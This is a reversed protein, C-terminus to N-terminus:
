QNEWPAKSGEFDELLLIEVEDGKQYGRTGSPLIILVGAGALSMVVSSKDLGSPEARLRGEEFSLSGRILRTFPNAKPFDVKLWAKEKRLHPKESFLKTRIVPRVFLEFGVYCASPNGSLGYLIKHNLRAVTTVSGPRMAVKNFLVDAELRKYIDPMIDYDGVSVGGTTILIDVETLAQKIAAYCIEIDDPLQGYYKAEAGARAAQAEIMPANSNRIKGPALEESVELLETGTAFLGIMPKKAVKVEHYGFTALVAIVGPNIITGKKVLLDGKKADEGQFSINDGSNQKRKISLYDKNNKEYTKVLELMIVTDAGEPLLAGTMIRAAQFPGVEKEAVMGAALSEIVEFEVSNGSEALRTDEARLAFGDYPSRNFHPVDHNAKIDEALFRNISEKLPVIETERDVKIDMIKAVAEYIPLPKRKELM